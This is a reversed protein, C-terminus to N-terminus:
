KNLAVEGELDGAKMKNVAVNKNINQLTDSGADLKTELDDIKDLTNNVRKRLDNIKKAGNNQKDIIKTINKTVTSIRDSNYKITNKSNKVNPQMDKIDRANSRVGSEVDKLQSDSELVKDKLIQVVRAGQGVQHGLTDEIASLRDELSPDQCKPIVCSETRIDPDTTYCWPGEERHDPNRCFSHNGLGANPYTLPTRDHSHPVQSTWRQCSKGSVTTNVTGRYSYLYSDDQGVCDVGPQLTCIYLYKRDCPVDNVKTMAAEACHENGNANNPESTETAWYDKSVATGDVWLWEGEKALDTAGVWVGENNPSGTQIKPKLVLIQYKNIGVEDNGYAVHCVGHGPVLKGGVIKNDKTARCIYIPVDNEVGGSVAEAPITASSGDMNSDVWAVSSLDSPNFSLLQFDVKTNARGGWPVLATKTDANYYGPTWQDNHLSRIVFLEPSLSSVQVSTKPPSKDKALAKWIGKEQCDRLGMITNKDNNIRVFGDMTVCQFKWVGADEHHWLWATCTTLNACKAACEGWSQVGRVTNANKRGHLNRGVIPCSGGGTGGIDTLNSGMRRRKIQQIQEQALNNSPVM